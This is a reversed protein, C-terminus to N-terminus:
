GSKRYRVCFYIGVYPVTGLYMWFIYIGTGTGTGVTIISLLFRRNEGRSWGDLDRSDRSSIYEGDRPDRYGGGGREADRRGGGNGGRQRGGGRLSNGGGRLGLSPSPTRFIFYIIFKFKNSPTCIFRLPFIYKLLPPPFISPSLVLCDAVACSRAVWYARVSTLFYENATLTTALYFPSGSDACPLSAKM